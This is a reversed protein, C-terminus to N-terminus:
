VAVPKVNSCSRMTSPSGIVYKMRSSYASDGFAKLLQITRKLLVNEDYYREQRKIDRDKVTDKKLM